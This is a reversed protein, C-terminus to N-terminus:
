SNELLSSVNKSANKYDGVVKLKWGDMARNETIKNAKQMTQAIEHRGNLWLVADKDLMSRFHQFQYANKVSWGKLIQNQQDYNIFIAPKNYMAFDFAMTSGVNLVVDAYFATSALLAVDDWAPFVSSFGLKNDHWLPDAVKILDSYQSIVLDFRDSFDVPCRRFLIQWEADLGNDLIEQALDRLYSPDDPSSRVDNGSFCIIKKADNLHFRNFFTERAITHKPNDYFEFQPTGTVIVQEQSIEPYYHHLEQKMHESWVLYQDAWVAMRAKPLNDWSYVATVVKIGLEKAAICVPILGPVRQHTIFVVSPKLARLDAKCKEIVQRTSLQRSKSELMLIRDYDGSAWTGIVEAVKYLMTLKFSKNKKEWNGMLTPNVDMKTNFRLRAYTASERLLRSISNEPKLKLNKVVIDRNHLHKVEAFAADPLPSWFVIEANKLHDIVASYLYNRIGVGDPILFLIKQNDM